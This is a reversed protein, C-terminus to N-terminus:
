IKEEPTVFKSQNENNLCSIMIRALDVSWLMIVDM